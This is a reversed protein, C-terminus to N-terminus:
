PHEEATDADSPRERENTEEASAERDAETPVLYGPELALWYLTFAILVVAGLAFYMMAYLEAGANGTHFTIFYWGLLLSGSGLALIRLDFQSLELVPIERRM